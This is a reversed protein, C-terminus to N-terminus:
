KGGVIVSIPRIQPFFLSAILLLRIIIWTLGFAATFEYIYAPLEPMNLFASGWYHWIEVFGFVAGFFALEYVLAPLLRVFVLVFAIGLIVALTSM